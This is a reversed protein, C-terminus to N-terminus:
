MHLARNKPQAFRIKTDRYTKGIDTKYNTYNYAIYWIECIYLRCNLIFCSFSKHLKCSNTHHFQRDSIDVSHQTQLLNALLDFFVMVLLYQGWDTLLESRACNYEAELGVVKALCAITQKTINKGQLARQLITKRLIKILLFKEM